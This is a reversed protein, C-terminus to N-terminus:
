RPTSQRDATADAFASTRQPQKYFFFVDLVRPWEINEPPSFVRESITIPLLTNKVKSNGRRDPWSKVQELLILIM